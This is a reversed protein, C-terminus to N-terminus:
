GRTRTALAADLRSFYEGLTLQGEETAEQLVAVAREREADRVFLDDDKM